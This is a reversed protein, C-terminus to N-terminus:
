FSNWVRVKFDARCGKDVWIYDRGVGYSTGQSCESVSHQSSLIVDLIQGGTSCSNYRGNKSECLISKTVEGPQQPDPRTPGVPGGPSRRDPIPPRPLPKYTVLDVAFEARCGNEVWIFSSTYGWQGSCDNRSYQQTLRINEIRGDVTCTERRGDVSSCSERISRYVEGFPGSDFQSCYAEPYRTQNMECYRRADSCSDYQSFGSTSQFYDFTGLSDRLAYTCYFDDAQAQAGACVFVTACFKLLRVSKEKSKYKRIDRNWMSMRFLLYVALKQFFIQTKDCVRPARKSVSVLRM